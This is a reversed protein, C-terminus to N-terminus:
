EGGGGLFGEEGGASCLFEFMIINSGGAIGSHDYSNADTRGHRDLIKRPIPENTKEPIKCSTQPGYLSLLSIALTKKSQLTYVTRKESFKLEM